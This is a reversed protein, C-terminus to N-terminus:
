NLQVHTNIELLASLLYSYHFYTYHISIVWLLFLWSVIGLFSAVEHPFIQLFLNKIVNVVLWLFKNRRITQYPLPDKKYSMRGSTTCEGNAGFVYDWSELRRNTLAFQLYVVSHFLTKVQSRNSHQMNRTEKWDKYRCM